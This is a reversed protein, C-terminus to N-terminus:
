TPPRKQERRQLPVFQSINVSYYTIFPHQKVIQEYQLYFLAIL